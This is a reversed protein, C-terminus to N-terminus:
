LVNAAMSLDFFGEHAIVLTELLVGNGSADVGAASWSVPVVGMLNWTVVEAGTADMVTIRGTSRKVAAQFSAFWGALALSEESVSRVLTINEYSLRGPLKHVFNNQGGEEYTKVAYTAKLGDCKTFMGIPLNDIMVKFRNQQAPNAM